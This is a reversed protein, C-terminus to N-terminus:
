PRTGCPRSLATAGSADEFQWRSAASVTLNFWCEAESALSDILNSGFDAESSIAFIFVFPFISSSGPM